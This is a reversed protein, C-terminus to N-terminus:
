PHTVVMGDIQLKQAVQAKIRDANARQLEPGIRVRWLPGAETVVREVFATFGAARARSRLANADAESKLAGIQVAFGPAVPTRAPAPAAIASEGDLAVVSASLDSRVRTAALRAAEAEGRQAYSGLRVRQVTKGEVQLAEAYAPLGAAKLAAVLASANAANGYSGLNVVYRGGPSTARDAAAPPPVIPASAPAAAVPAAAPATDAPAVVGTAAPAPAADAPPASSEPPPAADEPRADTRPASDTDVAVIRNPDDAAAPAAAGGGPAGLPLERTEFDREPAPPIELPVSSPNSQPDPGDVLMPLFIVALAVLVAAGILRQKLAADMEPKRPLLARPNYSALSFQQGHRHSRM